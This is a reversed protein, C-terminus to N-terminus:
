LKGRVLEWMMKWGAMKARIPNSFAAPDNKEFFFHGCWAFPYVVLPSLLLWWWSASSQLLSLIFCLTVVNGVIHLYRNAWHTHLKLYEKYYSEFDM